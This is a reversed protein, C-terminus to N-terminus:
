GVSCLIWLTFHKFNLVYGHNLTQLRSVHLIDQHCRIFPRFIRSIHGNIFLTIMLNNALLPLGQINHNLYTLTLNM